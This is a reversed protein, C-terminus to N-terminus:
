ATHHWRDLIEPTLADGREGSILTLESPGAVWSGIEVAWRPDYPRLAVSEFNVRDSFRSQSRKAPETQQQSIASSHESVRSQEPSFAMEISSESGNYISLRLYTAAEM